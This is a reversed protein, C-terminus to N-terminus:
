MWGRLELGRRLYEPRPRNDLLRPLRITPKLGDLFGDLGDIRRKQELRDISDANTIVRYTEDIGVLARDYAEHHLHCLAIGNSTLDNSEESKVPIIHAAETLDLQLDCMGCHHDYVSLVRRRFDSARVKIAISRVVRRRESPLTELTRAPLEETIARSLARLANADGAFRHLAEQQAVYEAFLDPSFAVAIEDNGKRQFAFVNQQAQELTEIYVQISPSRSQSVRHRRVDFGAFVGLGEHWGLLLTKFNPSVALPFDVGTMQIRYEHRPRKPGGGHTLSWIYVAISFVLEENFIRIRFPHLSPDAEYLLSLGSAHIAEEVRELLESKLLPAPM